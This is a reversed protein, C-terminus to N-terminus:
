RDKGTTYTTWVTAMLSVGEPFRMFRPNMDALVQALDKRLGNAHGKFTKEPFLSVMDVDVTSNAPLQLKLVGDACEAKASLTTSLKNWDSGAPVAVKGQAITKGAKDTVSVSLTTKKRARAFINFIYKDGKKLVIGDFGENEIAGASKTSLRAYHANNAHIPNQTDIEITAGGTAKWYSSPSWEKRDTSSYEFDRNQVLEAYLGGDAGYNIDEFFIGILKDSIPKAANHNLSVKATLPQLGKFRWPDQDMREDDRTANINRFHIYGNLRDIFDSDMTLVTGKVQKGQVTEEKLDAFSLTSPLAKMFDSDAARYEQPTWVEFNDTSAYAAVEGKKDPNFLIWYRGDADQALRVNHMRKGSGWAGFDSSLFNHFNGISRWENTKADRTALKMGGNGDPMSFALVEVPNGAFANGLGFFGSILSIGIQKALRKKMYQYNDFKVLM